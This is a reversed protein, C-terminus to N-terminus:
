DEVKIVESEMMFDVNEATTQQIYSNDKVEIIKITLIMDTDFFISDPNELVKVLELTYICDNIWKVKMEVKRRTGESYEIQKSGKRELYYTGYEEDLIKFKGDKFKECDINQGYLLSSLFLLLFLSLIRM